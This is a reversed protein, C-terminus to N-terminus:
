RITFFCHVNWIHYYMTLYVNFSGQLYHLPQVTFYKTVLRKTARM